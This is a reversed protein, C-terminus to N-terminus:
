LQPDVAKVVHTQPDIVFRGHLPDNLLYEQGQFWSKTKLEDLSGPWTGTEEHFQNVFRQLAEIQQQQRSVLEPRSIIFWDDMEDPKVLLHPASNDWTRMIEYLNGSPMLIPLVELRFQPDESMRETVVQELYGQEVIENMQPSPLEGNHDEIYREVASAIIEHAKNNYIDVMKQEAMQQSIDDGKNIAEERYRLFQNWAASFRGAARDMEFAMRDVYGPAEPYRPGYFEIEAPIFYQADEGGQFDSLQFVSAEVAPDILMIDSGVASSSRIRELSAESEGAYLTYQNASEPGLQLNFRGLERPEAFNFTLQGDLNLYIDSIPDDDRVAELDSGEVLGEASLTAANAFSPGYAAQVFLEKAAEYDELTYFSIFGADFTLRWADPNQAGGRMLFSMAAEPDNMAENIMFGGFQWASIFHPDLGTLNDLLKMMGQKKVDEDLSSFNGGFYQIARIWLLDAVANDFGLSAIKTVEPRDSLMLIKEEVRIHRRSERIEHQTWLFVLAFVVLLSTCVLTVRNM